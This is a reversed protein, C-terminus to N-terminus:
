REIETNGFDGATNLAQFDENEIQESLEDPTFRNTIKTLEDENKLMNKERILKETYTLKESYESKEYVQLWEFDNIIESSLRGIKAQTRKHIKM